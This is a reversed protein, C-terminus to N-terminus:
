AYKSGIRDFVFTRSNPGHSSIKVRWIIRNEMIHYFHVDMVVVYEVHICIYIQVCNQQTILTVKISCLKISKSKPLIM